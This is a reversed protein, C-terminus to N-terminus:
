CHRPKNSRSQQETFDKTKKPPKNKSSKKLIRGSSVQDLKTSSRTKRSTPSQSNSSPLSKNNKNATSRPQSEILSSPSYNPPNEVDSMVTNKSDAQKPEETHDSMEIDDDHEKQRNTGSAFPPLAHQETNTNAMRQHGNGAPERVKSPRRSGPLSEPSQSKPPTPLGQIAPYKATPSPGSEALVDRLKKSEELMRAAVSVKEEAHSAYIGAKKPERSRRRMMFITMTMMTMKKM